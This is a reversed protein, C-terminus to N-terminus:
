EILLKIIIILIDIVDRTKEGGLFDVYVRIESTEGDDRSAADKNLLGITGWASAAEGNANKNPKTRDDMQMSTERNTWERWQARGSMRLWALIAWRLRTRLCQLYHFYKSIQPKWNPEYNSIHTRSIQSKHNLTQTYQNLSNFILSPFKWIQIYPELNLHIISKLPSIFNWTEQNLKEMIQLLIQHHKHTQFSNQNHKQTYLYHLSPCNQFFFNKRM